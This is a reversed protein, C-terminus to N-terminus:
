NSNKIKKRYVYSFIAVIMVLIWFERKRLHYTYSWSVILGFFMPLLYRFFKEGHIKRSFYIQPKVLSFMFLLYAIVGLLGSTALIAMYTSHIEYRETIYGHINGLGLGYIPSRLFAVMTADINEQLFGTRFNSVAEQSIKSEFRWQMGIVNDLGWKFVVPMIIFLLTIFLTIKITNKKDSINKSTLMRLVTLLLGLLFGIIAARKFTLVLAIFIILLYFINRNNNRLIGSFFGPLIISLFLGFFSGAQGTNRFTGSLGGTDNYFWHFVFFDLLGIISIITTSITIDQLLLDLTYKNEQRFINYMALSTIFSVLHVLIEFYAVQPNHSLSASILFVCFIPLFYSYVPDIYFKYNNIFLKFFYFFIILFSFLEAITVRGALGIGAEGSVWTIGTSIFFLVFLIRYFM